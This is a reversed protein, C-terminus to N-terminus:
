TFLYALSMEKLLRVVQKTRTMNFKKLITSIQSKVTVIEVCREAAIESVKKGEILMGIIEKEAKTLESLINIMYLLSDEAKSMRYFEQKIKAAIKSNINAKGNYIDIVNKKLMDYESSKIVYDVNTVSSFAKFITAEDEHVTLFIIRIEPKMETIKKAANIGDYKDDMEIDTIVVDIDNELVIHVLDTGCNAQGVLQFEETDNIMNALDNRLVDMDEAIAIKIREVM